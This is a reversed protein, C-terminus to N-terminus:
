RPGELIAAGIMTEVVASVTSCTAIPITNRPITSCSRVSSPACGALAAPPPGDGGDAAPARAASARHHHHSSRQRRTSRRVGYCRARRLKELHEHGRIAMEVRCHESREISERFKRQRDQEARQLPSEPNFSAPAWHGAQHPASQNQAAGSPATQEGARQLRPQATQEVIDM